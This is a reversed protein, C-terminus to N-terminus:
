ARKPPQSTVHVAVLCIDDEVPATGTFRTIDQLILPLIDGPSEYIHARLSKELRALGFQEGEANVAEYCGDTVFVFVDGDVLRVTEAGYQEDDIVGLAAGRPKPKELRVVRGVSRHLHFPAPHGALSYTAIRSTTDAVFYSASAFFQTPLVRLLDCIQRNVERLFHAPNRGQAYLENLLTRIISTLLASRTGHGMVDGVFIGACDPSVAEIDFFDGGLALAPKYCHFFELRLRGDVYTAPVDPYPRNMFAQQFETALDLDHKMAVTLEAVDSQAAEQVGRLWKSLERHVPADEEMVINVWPHQRMYVETKSEHGHVQRLVWLGAEAAEVMPEFFLRRGIERALSFVGFVAACGILFAITLPGYIAAPVAGEKRVGVVWVPRAWRIGGDLQRARYRYGETWGEALGGENLARVVAPSSNSFVGDDGTVAWSRQGALYVALTQDNTIAQGSAAGVALEHFRLEQRVVARVAGGSERSPYIMGLVGEDSIGESASRDDSSARLLTWWETGDQYYQPPKESAAMVAGHRDAILVSILQADQRVLQSLMLGIENDLVSRVMLDDRPAGAWDAQTKEDQTRQVSTYRRESISVLSDTAPLRALTRMRLTESRLVQEMAAAVGTVKDEILRRHDERLLRWFFYLSVVMALVAPLLVFYLIWENYKSRLNSAM